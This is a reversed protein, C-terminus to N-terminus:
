GLGNAFVGSFWKIAFFLRAKAHEATIKVRKRKNRAELGVSNLSREINSESVRRRSLSNDRFM